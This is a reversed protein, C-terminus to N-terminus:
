AGVLELNTRVKAFLEAESDTPIRKAPQVQTLSQIDREIEGHWYSGAQLIRLQTESLSLGEKLANTIGLGKLKFRLLLYNFAPSLALARLSERLETTLEPLKTSKEIEILHDVHVTKTFM